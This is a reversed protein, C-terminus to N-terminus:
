KRKIKFDKKESIASLIERLKADNIMEKMQGTQYLQMLYLEIQQALMPNVIRVRGLREMAEKTLVKRLVDKKMRELEEEQAKQLDFEEM